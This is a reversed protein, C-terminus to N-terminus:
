HWQIHPRIRNETKEKPLMGYNYKRLTTPLLIPGSLLHDNLSFEEKEELHLEPVAIEIVDDKKDLKTFVPKSLFM